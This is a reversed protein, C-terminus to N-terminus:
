QVDRNLREVVAAEDIHGACFVGIVWKDGIKAFAITGLKGDKEFHHAEWAINNVTVTFAHTNESITSPIPNMIPAPAGKPLQVRDM